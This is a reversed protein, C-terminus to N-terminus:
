RVAKPELRDHSGHQCPEGEHGAGGRLDRQQLQRAVPPLPGVECGSARLLLCMQLCMKLRKLDNQTMKVSKLASKTRMQHHLESFLLRKHSCKPQGHTECTEVGRPRRKGRSQRCRCRTRRDCPSSLWRAYAQLFARRWLPRNQHKM